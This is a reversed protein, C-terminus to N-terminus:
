ANARRTNVEAPSASALTSGIRIGQVDVVVMWKTGKGRKTGVFTEMKRYAFSGDISAEQRDLAGKEDIM